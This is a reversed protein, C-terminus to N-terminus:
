YDWSRVLDRAAGDDTDVVEYGLSLYRKATMENGKLGFFLALGVLAVTLVSDLMDGNGGTGIVYSSTFRLCWLVLMVCGWLALGRFFLVLGFFGSGLCLSWSWGTDVFRFDGTAPHRLTIRM